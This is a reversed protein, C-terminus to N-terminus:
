KWFGFYSYYITGTGSTILTWGPYIPLYGDWDRGSLGVNQVVRIQEAAAGTAIAIYADVTVNFVTAHTLYFTKTSTNTYVTGAVAGGSAMSSESYPPLVPADPSTLLRNSNYSDILAGLSVLQSSTLGQRVATIIVPNVQDNLYFPQGLGPSGIVANLNNQTKNSGDSASVDSRIRYRNGTAMLIKVQRNLSLM